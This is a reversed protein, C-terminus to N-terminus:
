SAIALGGALSVLGLPVTFWLASVQPGLGALGSVAAAGLLGSLGGPGAPLRSSTSAGWLSLATGILAMAVLLLLTPRWWSPPAAAEEDEDLDILDSESDWLRRSFVWLLPLLLGGPLGFFLLVRESAWAGALGMWNEVPSGSATSGSPDTQTYSLLALALFVMAAALIGGGLLELSRRLSRRLVARWDAGRLGGRANSGRAQATTAARSAM